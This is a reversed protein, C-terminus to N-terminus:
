KCTRNRTVTREGTKTKPKPTAIPEKFIADFDVVKRDAERDYICLSFANMLFYRKDIIRDFKVIFILDYSCDRQKIEKDIKLALEEPVKPTLVFQSLSYGWGTNQQNIVVYKSPLSVCLDKFFIYDPRRVRSDNPYGIRFTFCDREIDYPLNMSLDFTISYFTSLFIRKTEKLRALYDQYEATKEFVRKELPTSVDRINFFNYVDENIIYPIKYFDIWEWDDDIFVPLQENKIDTRCINSDNYNDEAFACFMGIMLITTLIIIRKM